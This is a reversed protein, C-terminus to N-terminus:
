LNLYHSPKGFLLTSFNKDLVRNKEMNLYQGFCFLHNYEFTKFQGNINETLINKNVTSDYVSTKKQEYSYFFMNIQTFFYKRFKKNLFVTGSVWNEWKKKKMEWKRSIIFECDSLEIKTFKSIIKPCISPFFYKFSICNGINIIFNEIRQEETSIRLISRSKWNIMHELRSYNIFLSCLFAEEFFLFNKASLKLYCFDFKKKVFFVIWANEFRVNQFYSYYQFSFLSKKGLHGKTVFQDEFINFCAQITNKSFTKPSWHKESINQKSNYSFVVKIKNEKESICKRMIYREFFMYIGSIFITKKYACCIEKTKNSILIWMIPCFPSNIFLYPVKRKQFYYSVGIIYEIGLKEKNNISFQKEKDSKIHFMWLRYPFILNLFKGLFILYLECKSNLDIIFKKTSITTIPLILFMLSHYKIIKNSNYLFVNKLYSNVRVNLVTNPKIM